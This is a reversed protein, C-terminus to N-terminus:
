FRRGEPVCRRARANGDEDNGNGNRRESQWWYALWSRSCRMSYTHLPNAQLWTRDPWGPEGFSLADSNNFSKQSKNLLSQHRVSSQALRVLFSFLAFPDKWDFCCSCGLKLYLWPTWTIRFIARFNNVLTAAAGKTCSHLWIYKSERM